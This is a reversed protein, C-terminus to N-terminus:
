HQNNSTEGNTLFIAVAAGALGLVLGSCTWFGASTGAVSASTGGGSQALFDSDYAQASSANVDYFAEQQAFLQHSLGFTLMAVLTLTSVAKKM